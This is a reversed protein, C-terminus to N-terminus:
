KLRKPNTKNQSANKIYEQLAPKTIKWIRSNNVKFGKLLGSKLLDLCHHKSINLIECVDDTSMIDPYFTNYIIM